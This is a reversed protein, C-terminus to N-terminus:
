QVRADGCESGGEGASTAAKAVKAAWREPMAGCESGGEGSNNGGEGGVDGAGDCESGDQGFHQDGEGDV